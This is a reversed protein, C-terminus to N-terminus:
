LAVETPYVQWERKEPDSPREGKVLSLRIRSQVYRELDADFNAMWKESDEVSEAYRKMILDRYVQRKATEAANEAQLATVTVRRKKRLGFM